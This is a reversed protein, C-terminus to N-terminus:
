LRTLLGSHARFKTSKVAASRLSFLSSYPADRWDARSGIRMGGCGLHPSEPSVDHEIWASEGVSPLSGEDKVPVTGSLAKASRDGHRPRRDSQPALWAM